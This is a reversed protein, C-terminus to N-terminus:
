GATCRYTCFGSVLAFLGWRMDRDIVSQAPNFPDVWVRLVEEGRKIRRLTAQTDRHYSGINDKVESVGVRNGRYSVGGIEYSYNVRTENEAGSFSILRAEVPQWNQMDQWSQWMPLATESLMFFGGGAFILGFLLGPIILLRRM